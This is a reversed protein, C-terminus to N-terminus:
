VEKFLEYLTDKAYAQGSELIGTYAEIVLKDLRLVLDEEEINKFVFQLSCIEKEQLKDFAKLKDQPSKDNKLYLELIKTREEFAKDIKDRFISEKRMLCSQLFDLVLAKREPFSKKQMRTILEETPALLKAVIENTMESKNPVELQRLLSILIGPAFIPGGISLSIRSDLVRSVSMPVKEKYFEFMERRIARSVGDDQYKANTLREMMKLYEKNQDEYHINLDKGAIRTKLANYKDLWLNKAIMSKDKEFYKNRENLAEALKEDIGVNRSENAIGSNDSFLYFADPNEVLISKVALVTKKIFMELMGLDFQNMESIFVVSEISIFGEYLIERNLNNPVLSEVGDFDHNLHTDEAEKRCNMAQMNYLIQAALLMFFSRM